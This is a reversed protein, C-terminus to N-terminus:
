FLAFQDPNKRQRKRRRGSFRVINEYQRDTFTLIHVDGREPLHAEILMDLGAREKGHAELVAAQWRLKAVVVRSWLQKVFPRGAEWQARMRGNQGHRGDLPLFVGVPAHNPDCLVLPTAREALTVALNTSWTVGHAHVIVAAIDDVPARGVEREEESVILFGSHVSLHRGDSAIDVVRQM